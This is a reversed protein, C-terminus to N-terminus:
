GACIAHGVVYSVFSKGVSQSRFETEDSVRFLRFRDSPAVGDYLIQGDGYLLYSLMGSTSLQEDLYASTRLDFAFDEANGGPQVEFKARQRGQRLWRNFYYGLTVDNPEPRLYEPLEGRGPFTTLGRSTTVHEVRRGNSTYPRQRFREGWPANRLLEM